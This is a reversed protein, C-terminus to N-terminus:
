SCLLSTEMYGGDATMFLLFLQLILQVTPNDTIVNGM